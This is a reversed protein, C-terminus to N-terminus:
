EKNFVGEIGSGLHERLEVMECWEMMVGGIDLMLSCLDFWAFCTVQLGFCIEFKVLHSIKLGYKSCICSLKFIYKLYSM